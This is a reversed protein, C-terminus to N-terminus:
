AETKKKSLQTILQTAGGRPVQNLVCWQNLYSLYSFLFFDLEWHSDFEPGRLGYDSTSGSSSGGRGM